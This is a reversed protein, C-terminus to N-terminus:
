WLLGEGLPELKVHHSTSLDAWRTKGVIGYAYIGPKSNILRAFFIIYHHTKFTQCYLVNATRQAM